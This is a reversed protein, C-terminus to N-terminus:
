LKDKDVLRINAKFGLAWAMDMVLDLRPVKYLLPKM